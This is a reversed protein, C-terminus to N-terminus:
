AAEALTVAARMAEVEQERYKEPLNLWIPDAGLARLRSEYHARAMAQLQEDSHITSATAM